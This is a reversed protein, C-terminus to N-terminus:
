NGRNRAESKMLCRLIEGTIGPMSAFITDADRHTIYFGQQELLSTPNEQNFGMAWAPMLREACTQDLLVEVNRHREDQRIKAFISRVQKERGELLQFYQQNRYILVGSIKQEANNAQSKNLIELLLSESVETAPTSKYILQHLSM